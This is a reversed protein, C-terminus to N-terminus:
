LDRLTLHSLEAVIAGQVDRQVVKAHLVAGREEFHFSYPGNRGPGLSTGMELYFNVGQAKEERHDMWVALRIEKFGFNGTPIRHGAGHNLIYLEVELGGTPSTNIKGTEITIAELYSPAFTHDHHLYMRRVSQATAPDQEPRIERANIPRM